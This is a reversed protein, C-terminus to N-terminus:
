FSPYAKETPDSNRPSTDKLVQRMMADKAAQAEPDKPDGIKAACGVLLTALLSVMLMPKM